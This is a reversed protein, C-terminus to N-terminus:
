TYEIEALFLVMFITDVSKKKYWYKETNMIVRWWPSMESCKKKIRGEQINISFIYQVFTSHGVSLDYVM